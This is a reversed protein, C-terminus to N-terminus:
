NYQYISQAIIHSAKGVGYCAIASGKSNVASLVASVIKEVGSLDALRNWNAEILEVWETETRLTVCPVQHFYAEKQVGGSDTIIVSASRELAVMDIFGVPPLLLINSNLKPLSPHAEITKQTRPHLPLVVKKVDTLANLATIITALRALNDTTEARHITTLFYEGPQLKLRQLLSNDTNAAYFLTADYMVDGAAIIKNAEIGENNLNAVATPTPTFLLSSIRDTLIRNIEEPMQMNFSRLGAEVHMVPIHLKVAALAGALTSNTDGYVLVADPQEELLVTEIGALMKGTQQGHNGGGAQLNYKPKPINMESFFVESMNADFHQGSHLIVEELDSFLTQFARSITAAKIFQPRASVVTLVKM